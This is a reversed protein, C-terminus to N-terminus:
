RRLETGPLLLLSAQAPMVMPGPLCQLARAAQTAQVVARLQLPVPLMVEVLFALM